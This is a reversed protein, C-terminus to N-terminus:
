SPTLCGLQSTCTCKEELSVGWSQIETLATALSQEPGREREGRRGERVAAGVSGDPGGSVMQDPTGQRGKPM